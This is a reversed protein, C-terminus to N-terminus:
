RKGRAFDIALLFPTGIVFVLAAALDVLGSKELFRRLLLDRSDSLRFLRRRGNLVWLESGAAMSARVKSELPGWGLGNGDPWLLIVQNFESWNVSGLDARTILKGPTTEMHQQALALMYDKSRANQRFLLRRELLMVVRSLLPIQGFWAFLRPYVRPHDYVFLTAM